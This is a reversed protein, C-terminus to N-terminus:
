ALADAESGGAPVVPIDSFHRADAILVHVGVQHFLRAEVAGLEVRQARETLEVKVDVLVLFLHTPTALGAIPKKTNESM